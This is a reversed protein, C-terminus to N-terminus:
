IEYIVIIKELNNRNPRGVTPGSFPNTPDFNIRGTALTYKFQLSSPTGAVLSCIKGSRAVMRISVYSLAADQVYDLGVAGYYTKTLMM